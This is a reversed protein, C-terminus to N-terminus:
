ISIFVPKLAISDYVEPIAPVSQNFKLKSAVIKYIM